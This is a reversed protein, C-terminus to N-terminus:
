TIPLLSEILAALRKLGVPKALYENAGAALCRERDGAMALATVMIIPVRAVAPDARSRLERTAALGDVYPMQVDMLIVDPRIEGALQLVERGNRAVFPEYGRSRLFDLITAVNADDDDAILVRRRLPLIETPPEVVLVPRASLSGGSARAVAALVRERTVPKGVLETAGLARAQSARELVTVVIVPIRATRPDAKLASLISWGIEAPLLIDLLIVQPLLTAAQEVVGDGDLQLVPDLGAEQLYRALQEAVAPSDEVVLARPSLPAASPHSSPGAAPPRRPVVVTFRSGQGPVSEVSVRGAHADVLKRVLSLGLGTGLHARALGSDLQVFPQFLRPLQEPAIGIGTDWVTFRLADGSPDVAVELGLSGGEGTFKVANSLLNVLIQKLRREDARLTSFGDKIQLSVGQRKKLASEQIMRLCSRCLEDVGVTSIDLELRGAEIKSLDLIDSILSLLHRGSEEVRVLARRQREEVPGYVEEMLAETLGLVANLPTRLEHSMGALFEDKAQSVRTLAEYAAGLEATRAEVRQELEANLQTLAEEAQVHDSIDRVSTVRLVRDGVPLTRGTIEVPFESGDKRRHRSVMHMGSHQADSRARNWTEITYRTDIDWPHLALLEEETYGLSRCAQHNVYVFRGDEGLWFIADSSEDVTHRFMQLAQDALTRETIDVVAGVTRVARREAGEGEFFTQSRTEVWRVAGDSFRRIPNVLDFRGDGSPDLGHQVALVVRGREEVPVASIFGELTVPEDPGVGFIERQEPSWYVLGTRHDREFIGTRTLRVVQQLREERARAETALTPDVTTGPGTPDGATTM